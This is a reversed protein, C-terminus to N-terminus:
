GGIRLAQDKLREYFPMARAALDALDGTLEPVPGEPGAFGTSSQIASYWHPAWVGDSVHGGAPWSLMAPDFELDLASCLRKLAREPAARIDAGDIVVGGTTEFIEAQREFGIDHFTLDARKAAYSAVVRAPHRVLHVHACSGTWDMPFEPLIHLAIHKMYFHAKGEPVSGKCMAAVLYADTEHSTIIEDRMPDARGTNVLYPAYFPEDWVAFDARNGFAYM